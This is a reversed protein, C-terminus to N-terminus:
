KYGLSRRLRKIHERVEKCSREDHIGLCEIILATTEKGAIRPRLMFPHGAWSPAKKPVINQRALYYLMQQRDKLFRGFELEV